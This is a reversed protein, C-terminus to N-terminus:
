LSGVQEAEIRQVVLIPGRLVCDDDASDFPQGTITALATMATRNVEAESDFVSYAAYNPGCALVDVLGLHCDLYGAIEDNVAALGTSANPLSLTNAAITRASGNPLYLTVNAAM